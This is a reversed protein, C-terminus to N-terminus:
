INFIVVSKVNDSFEKGIFSSNGSFLNEAELMLRKYCYNIKGPSVNPM